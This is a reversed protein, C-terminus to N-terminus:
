RPQVNCFRNRVWGSVANPKAKSDSLPSWHRPERAPLTVAPGICALASGILLSWVLHTQWRWRSPQPPPPTTLPPIPSCMRASEPLTARTPSAESSPLSVSGSRRLRLAARALLAVLRIRIAPTFGAGGDSPPRKPQLLSPPAPQTVRSLASDSRSGAVASPGCPVARERAAREVRLDDGESRALGAGSGAAAADSCCCRGRLRRAASM